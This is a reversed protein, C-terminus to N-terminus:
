LKRNCIFEAFAKLIGDTDYDAVSEDAEGTLKKAYDRAQQPKLYSMYTTKGDETGDDLLDDTLQFALGLKEAFSEAASWEPSTNKIGAAICGLLCSARILAGTKLLNMKVLMDYELRKTEGVLDLQQGGVMGWAGACEALIRVAELKVPPTLSDASCILEFASTLLADGALLATAEGFAIHCSPKGRREDDNDMCPLDDHILSYSHVAEVACAFPMASEVNGGFMRCFQLVLFPRIRKGGSSTAYEMAKYLQPFDLDNYHKLYESLARGVSESTESLRLSLSSTM